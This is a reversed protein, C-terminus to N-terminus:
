IRPFKFKDETHITENSYPDRGTKEIYYTSFYEYPYYKVPCDNNDLAWMAWIPNKWYKCNYTNPCGFCPAVLHYSLDIM